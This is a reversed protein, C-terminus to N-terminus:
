LVQHIIYLLSDDMFRIISTLYKTSVKLQMEKKELENVKLPNHHYQLCSTELHTFFNLIM